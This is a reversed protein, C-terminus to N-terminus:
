YDNGTHAQAQTHTNTHTKWSTSANAHNEAETVRLRTVCGTAGSFWSEARVLEIEWDCSEDYSTWEVPFEFGCVLVVRDRM